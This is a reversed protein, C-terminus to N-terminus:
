PTARLEDVDMLKDLAQPIILAYGQQQWHAVENPGSPALTVFDYFDASQYGLEEAFSQCAIFEVGLSAYYKMREVSEQYTAYNKHLLTVIEAGHIVVKIHMFEPALDYPPNMLTNMYIRLWSLGTAIKVPHNFFFEFVTKPEESYPTQVLRAGSPETAFASHPLVSLCLLFASLKLGQKM